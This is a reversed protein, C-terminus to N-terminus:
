YNNAFQCINALCYISAVSSIIPYILSPCYLYHSYYKPTQSLCAKKVLCGALDRITRRANLHEADYLILFVWLFFVMREFVNVDWQAVRCSLYFCSIEESNMASIEISAISSSNKSNRFLCVFINRTNYYKTRGSNSYKYTSYIPLIGNLIMMIIPSSISSKWDNMCIKNKNTCFVDM